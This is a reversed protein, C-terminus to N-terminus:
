VLTNLYELTSSCQEPTDNDFVKLCDFLYLNSTIKNVKTRRGKLFTESQNSGREEYRKTLTDASARLVVVSLQTNPLDLCFELFSNNFVRDGEFIVNSQTERVWNELNPQVGMSLKDTGAFVEENNYKGVVWLDRSASYHAAVLKAPEVYQWDGGEMFKRMLTTKGSGPEGGIAVIKRM